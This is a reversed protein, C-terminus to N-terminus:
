DLWKKRHGDKWVGEREKGKDDTFHGRGHQVGNVWEGDYKKGNAWIYLGRGHKKDDKYEGQYM